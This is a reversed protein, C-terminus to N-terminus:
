TDPDLLLPRDPLHYLLHTIKPNQLDEYPLKQLTEKDLYFDQVDDLLNLKKLVPFGFSSLTNTV